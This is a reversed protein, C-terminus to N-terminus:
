QQKPTNQGRHDGGLLNKRSTQACFHPELRLLEMSHYAELNYGTKLASLAKQLRCKYNCMHFKNNQPTKGETIGMQPSKKELNPRLPSTLLRWLDIIHLTELNYGSELASLAKQLPYKFNCM